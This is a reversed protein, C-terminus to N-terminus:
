KMREEVWKPVEMKIMKYPLTSNPGHFDSGCSKLLNYKLVINEFYKIQEKTHGPYYIELGKVGYNILNFILKEDKLNGPHALIPIGKSKLILNIAQYPTFKYRPVYGPMGRNLYKSFALDTNKAYGKSVIAKAVHPRGISKGCAEKLVDEYSIKVGVSNVKKVMKEARDRRGDRIVDLKKQLIENKVDFFYGLIHVEDNEVDTNIEVGTVIKLGLNEAELIADKLGSTTDHDCISLVDLGLKNAERVVDRPSFNGDSCNTHIHLDGTM